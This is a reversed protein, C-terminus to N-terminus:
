HVEVASTGHPPVNGSEGGPPFTLVESTGPQTMGLVRGDSSSLAASGWLSARVAPLGTEVSRLVLAGLIQQMAIASGRIARDSSLVAIFAGGARKGELVLSRSFVEYCILAVGQRAGFGLTPPAEGPVLGSGAGFGLVPREWGPVLLRKARMATVQGLPDVLVAANRAGGRSRAALGVLHARRTEGPLDSLRVDATGHGEELSPRATMVGEPWVLLELGKPFASPPHASDSMSVAGVGLLARDDTV